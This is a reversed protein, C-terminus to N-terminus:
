RWVEIHTVRRMKTQLNGSLTVKEMALYREDGDDWLNQEGRL